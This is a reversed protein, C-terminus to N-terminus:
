LDPAEATAITFAQTADSVVRVDCSGLATHLLQQTQASGDAVLVLRQAM